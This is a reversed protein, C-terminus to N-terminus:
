EASSPSDISPLNAAPFITKSLAFASISILDRQEDDIILVGGNNDIMSVDIGNFGSGGHVWVNRFTLTAGDNVTFTGPDTLSVTICGANTFTSTTITVKGSTIAPLKKEVSTGTGTLFLDDDASGPGCGKNPQGEANHNEIAKKLSCGLPFDDPSADVDITNAKATAAHLMSLLVICLLVAISVFLRKIKM